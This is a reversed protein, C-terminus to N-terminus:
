CSETQYKNPVSRLNHKNFKGSFDECFFLTFSIDPGPVSRQTAPSFFISSYIEVNKIANKSYNMETRDNLSLILPLIAVLVKEIHVISRTFNM